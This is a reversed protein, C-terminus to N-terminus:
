EMEPRPDNAFQQSDQGAVEADFEGDYIVVRYNLRIQKGEPLVVGSTKDGGTFYDADYLRRTDLMSDTPTTVFGCAPCRALVDLHPEFGTHGCVLCARDVM